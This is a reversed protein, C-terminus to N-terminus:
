PQHAALLEKQMFPALLCEEKNNFFLTNHKKFNPAYSSCSKDRM